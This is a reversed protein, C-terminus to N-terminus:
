RECGLHVSQRGSGAGCHAHRWLGSAPDAAGWPLTNPTHSGQVGKNPLPFCTPCFSPFCHCCALWVDAKELCCVLPFLFNAVGCSMEVGAVLARSCGGASGVGAAQLEGGAAAEQRVQKGEVSVPFPRLRETVDEGLGLQGCDGDGFVFVQGPTQLLGLLFGHHM